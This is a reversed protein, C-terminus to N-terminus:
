STFESTDFQLNATEGFPQWQVNILNKFFSKTVTDTFAFLNVRVVLNYFDTDHTDLAYYTTAGGFDSTYYTLDHKGFIDVNRVPNWYNNRTKTDLNIDTSNDDGTAGFNSTSFISDNVLMRDVDLTTEKSTSAGPVYKQQSQGIYNFHESVTNENHGYANNHRSLLSYRVFSQCKRHTPISTYWDDLVYKDTGASWTIGNTEISGADNSRVTGTEQLVDSSNYRSISMGDLDFGDAGITPLTSLCM